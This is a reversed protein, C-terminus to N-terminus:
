PLWRFDADPGLLARTLTQYLHHHTNILGPLVVMGSSDLVSDAQQPLDASPGALEIVNDRVLLGGAEILPQRPAMTLLAAANKLLLTPM